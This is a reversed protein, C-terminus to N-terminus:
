LTSVSQQREDHCLRKGKELNRHKSGVVWLWIQSIYPDGVLYLSQSGSTHEFNRHLIMATSVNALYLKVKSAQGNDTRQLIIQLL